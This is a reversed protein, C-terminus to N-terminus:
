ECMFVTVGTTAICQCILVVMAGNILLRDTRDPFIRRYGFCISLKTLCVAAPFFVLALYALQRFNAPYDFHLGSYLHSLPKHSILLLFPMSVKTFNTWQPTAWGLTSVDWIHYGMGYRSALCHLLITPIDFLQVVLIDTRKRNCLLALRVFAAGMTWDDIGLAHTISIRAYFRSILVGAALATIGIELGLMTTVLQQPNHSNPAPWTALQEPTPEAM